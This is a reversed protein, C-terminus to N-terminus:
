AAPPKGSADLPLRRKERIAPVGSPRPQKVQQIRISPFARVKRKRSPLPLHGVPRFCFVKADRRSSLAMRRAAM